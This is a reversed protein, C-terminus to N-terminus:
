RSQGGYKLSVAPADPGPWHGAPITLLPREAADEIVIREAEVTVVRYVPFGYGYHVGIFGEPGFYLCEARAEDGLRFLDIDLRGPEGEAIQPACHARVSRYENRREPLPTYLYTGPDVLIDEGDISLEVSLQDNHAHAGNYGIAGCRVALYLHSSRFIYLGFDPYAYLTSPAALLAGVPIKM